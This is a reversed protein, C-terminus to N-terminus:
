TKNMEFAKLAAATWQETFISNSLEQENMM